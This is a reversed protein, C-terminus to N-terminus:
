KNSINKLFSYNLGFMLNNYTGFAAVANLSFNKWRYNVGLDAKFDTTNQSLDDLAANLITLIFDGNGGASYDFKSRILGVSASVDFQKWTKSTILNFGFSQGDVSISNISGLILDTASFTDDVSYNSYTGLVAINFGSNKLPSIWQNLNHSLGVGLSQFNTSNIEINPAYRFIVNTKKWLGVTAQIQAHKVTSENIGEPSDFEFASGNITGEFVVINDDGLASPLNATSSAGQISLNQLQSEDVFFTTKRKPIFLTNYQLSLEVEFKNKPIASTYWGSSVQFVSAQAAPSIYKETLFILDEAATSVDEFQAQAVSTVLCLLLFFKRM